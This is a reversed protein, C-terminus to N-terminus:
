IAEIANSVFEWLENTFSNSVRRLHPAASGRVFDVCIDFIM